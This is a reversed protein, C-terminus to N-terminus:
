YRLRENWTYHWGSDTVAYIAANQSSAVCEAISRLDAKEISYETEHEIIRLSPSSMIYYGAMIIVSLLILFINM